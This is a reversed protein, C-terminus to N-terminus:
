FTYNEILHQIFKQNSEDIELFRLGMAFYDTNVDSNVRMTEVHMDFCTTNMFAAPLIIRIDMIIGSNISHDSVLMAGGPSIDILHGVPQQTTSDLVTPQYFLSHRKLQRQDPIDKIRSLFM